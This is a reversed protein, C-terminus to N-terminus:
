LVYDKLKASSKRHRSLRQVSPSCAGNSEAAVVGKPKAPAPARLNEKESSSGGKSGSKQPQPM